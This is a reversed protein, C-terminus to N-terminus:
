GAADARGNGPKGVGAATPEARADFARRLRRLGEEIDETAICGFGLMFGPRLAVDHTYTELSQVALGLGAARRLALRVDEADLGKAFASVHLGVGSQVVDAIDAFDRQLTSVILDYRKEYVGRMRRLHRAFGGEEIFSALAAQLPLASHWDMLFKAGQMAHRVSPPSVIFGIRMTPLLTKSFSGVYIVRGSSDLSRLTELPRGGYRFESDYDDEIIAANRNSAWDLLQLRRSLSLVVGLPWEHSPTAYVLRADDPIADVVIGQDDVPVCQVRSGGSALLMRPPPYGPDEVAVCDGPHLMARAIVDIAQQTGATIVIDDATTQVGRSVGLHRAIAERLRRDGAPHGYQGRGVAAPEFQAAVLRRWPAFPFLTADPVGTRFDFEARQAFVTPAKYGDWKPLARLSDGPGADGGNQGGLGLESVFTGSGVRSNVLGEGWLRDYAVAVTARSVELNRAMERTPPLLDGSRLRGELIARRLQRYIEGSLDRRGELTVHVEMGRM